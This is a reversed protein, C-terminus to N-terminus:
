LIVCDDPNSLFPPPFVPAGEFVLNGNSACKRIADPQECSRGSGGSQKKNKKKNKKDNQKKQGKKTKKNGNQTNHETNLNIQKAKKSRKM